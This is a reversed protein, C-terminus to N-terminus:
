HYDIVRLIVDAGANKDATSVRQVYLQDIASDDFGLTESIADELVKVCNSIDRRRQNSFRLWSQWHLGLASM